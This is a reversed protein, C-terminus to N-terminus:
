GFCHHDRGSERKSKGLCFFVVGVSCGLEKVAYAGVDNHALLGCSVEYVLEVFSLYWEQCAIKVGIRAMKVGIGSRVPVRRQSEKEQTRSEEAASVREQEREREQAPRFALSNSRM